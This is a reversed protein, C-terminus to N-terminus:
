SAEEREFGESIAPIKRAFGTPAVGPARPARFPNKGMRYPWLACKVAACRRVEISQGASCDLCKARIVSMPSQRRHGAAELDHRSPRLAGETSGDPNRIILSTIM